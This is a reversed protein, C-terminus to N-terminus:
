ARRGPPARRFVGIRGTQDLRGVYGALAAYLNTSPAM